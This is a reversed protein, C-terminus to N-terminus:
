IDVSYSIPTVYPNTYPLQSIGLLNALLRILRAGESRQVNLATMPNISLNGISTALAAKSSQRLSEDVEDILALNDDILTLRAQTLQIPFEESPISFLISLREILDDSLDVLVLAMPCATALSKDTYIKFEISSLPVRSLISTIGVDCFERRYLRYGHLAFHSVRVFM